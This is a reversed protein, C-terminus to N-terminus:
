LWKDTQMSARVNGHLDIRVRAVVKEVEIIRVAWSVGVARELRAVSHLRVLPMPYVTLAEEVRALRRKERTREPERSELLAVFVTVIAHQEVFLPCCHAFDLLGLQRM